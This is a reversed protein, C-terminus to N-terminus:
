GGVGDSELLIDLVHDGSAIGFQAAQFQEHGGRGGDDDRLDRVFIRDVCLPRIIDHRVLTLDGRQFARMHRQFRAGIVGNLRRPKFHVGVRGSGGGVGAAGQHFGVSRPGRVPELEPKAVIRFLDRVQAAIAERKGGLVAM